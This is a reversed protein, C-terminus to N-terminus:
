SSSSISCNSSSMGGGRSLTNSSRALSSRSPAPRGPASRRRRGAGVAHQPQQLRQAVLAGSTSVVAFRSPTLRAAIRDGVHELGNLVACPPLIDTARTSAPASRRRRWASRRRLAFGAADGADNLISPGPLRFARDPAAGALGDREALEFVGLGAVRQRAPLCGCGASASPAAAIRRHQRDRDGGLLALVVDLEALRQLLSISSSGDIVTTCLASVWSTTSHPCPSICRRTAVSRSASRKPTAM